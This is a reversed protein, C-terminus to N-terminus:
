LSVWFSGAKPLKWSSQFTANPSLPSYAKFIINFGALDHIRRM